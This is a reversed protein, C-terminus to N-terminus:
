TSRVLKVGGCGTGAFLGCPPVSQTGIAKATCNVQVLICFRCTTEEAYVSNSFQIDRWESRNWKGSMLVSTGMEPM